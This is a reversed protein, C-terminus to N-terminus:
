NSDPLNTNYNFIEFDLRYYEEVMKLSESNYVQNWPTQVKSSNEHVLNLNMSFNKQTQKNWKEQFKQWENYLDEFRLVDDIVIRKNLTVFKYQPWYHPHSLEVGFKGPKFQKKVFNNFDEKYSEISVPGPHPHNHKWASYFRDYPNRVVCLSNYTFLFDEDNNNLVDIITEHSHLFDDTKNSFMVHFSVSACKPIGIFVLNWKHFIM